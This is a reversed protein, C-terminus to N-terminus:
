ECAAGDEALWFFNCTCVASACNCLTVCIFVGWYLHHWGCPYLGEGGIESQIAKDAGNCRVEACLGVQYPHGKVRGAAQRAGLEWTDNLLRIRVEDSTAM